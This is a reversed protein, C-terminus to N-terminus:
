MARACDRRARPRAPHSRAARDTFQLVRAGTRERPPSAEGGTFLVVDGLEIRDLADLM